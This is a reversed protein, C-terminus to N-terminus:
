KVLCADLEAAIADKDMHQGIFVLKQQRDGYREDWEADLSEDGAREEAIREPELSAVWAGDPTATMQRGAQEYLYAM